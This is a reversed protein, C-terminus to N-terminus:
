NTEYHIIRPELSRSIQKDELIGLAKVGTSESANVDDEEPTDGISFYNPLDPVIVGCSHAEDCPETAILPPCSTEFPGDSSFSRVALFLSGNSISSLRCGGHSSLVAKM